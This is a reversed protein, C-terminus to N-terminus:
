GGSFRQLLYLTTDKGMNYNAVTRSDELIKGAFIITQQRPSICEVQEIKKKVEFITEGPDVDITLSEGELSKFFMRM